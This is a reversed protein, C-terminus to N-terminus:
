TASSLGLAAVQRTSRKRRAEAERTACSFRPRVPLTGCVRSSDRAGLQLVRLTGIVRFGKNRAIRVGERDDMLVLDATTSAKWHPTM